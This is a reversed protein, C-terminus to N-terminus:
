GQKDLLVGSAGMQKELNRVNRAMALAEESPVQLVVRGTSESVLQFYTRGSGEDLQFKLESGSQQLHNNLEGLAAESSQPSDAGPRGGEGPPQTDAIKVPRLKAPVPRAAAASLAVSPLGPTLSNLSNVQDTM